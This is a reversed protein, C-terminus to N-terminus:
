YVKVYTTKSSGFYTSDGAFKVITKYTNKKAISVKLKAAGNAATTLSYIKGNLSVKVTRKAVAKGDVDKLVVTLYGAKGAKVKIANATISTAKKVTIKVVKSSALYTNDGEFKITASYAKPTTIGSVKFTAVGKSNTM